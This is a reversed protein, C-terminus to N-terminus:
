REGKLEFWEGVLRETEEAARVGLTTPTFDSDQLIAFVGYLSRQLAPMEKEQAEMQELRTALKAKKKKEAKALQNNLAVDLTKLEDAVISLKQRGEYLTKSLDHQQQLKEVPTRVCSDM